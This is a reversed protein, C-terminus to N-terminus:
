IKYRATYSFAVNLTSGSNLETIQEAQAILEQIDEPLYSMNGSYYYHYYHYWSFILGAATILDNVLRCGRYLSLLLSQTTIQDVVKIVVLISPQLLRAATVLSNVLRSGQYCGLLLSQTTLYDVVKIVVWCSVVLFTIKIM